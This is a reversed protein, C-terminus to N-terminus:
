GANLYLGFCYHSYFIAEFVYYSSAIHTLVYYFAQVIHITM